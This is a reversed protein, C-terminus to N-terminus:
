FYFLLQFVLKKKVAETKIASQAGNRGAEAM